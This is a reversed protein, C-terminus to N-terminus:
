AVLEFKCHSLLTSKIEKFVDHKKVTGGLKLKAGKEADIYTGTSWTLV